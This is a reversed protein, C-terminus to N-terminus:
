NVSCVLSSVLSDADAVDRIYHVGPLNGGIKEPLRFCADVNNCASIWWLWTSYVLNRYGTWTYLWYFFNILWQLLMYTPNAGQRLFTFNYCFSTSTTLITRVIQNEVNLVIAWAHM